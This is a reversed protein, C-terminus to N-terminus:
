NAGELKQIELKLGDVMARLIMVKSHKMESMASEHVVGRYGIMERALKEEYEKLKQKLNVIKVKNTM